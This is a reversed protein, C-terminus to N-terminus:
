TDLGPRSAGPAYREPVNGAAVTNGPRFREGALANAPRKPELPAGFSARARADQGPPRCPCASSAAASRPWRRSARTSRRTAVPERLVAADPQPRPGQEGVVAPGPNIAVGAALAPQYLKVTDVGDPLKVWLFIGGKPDDFEAATGFHENLSEM